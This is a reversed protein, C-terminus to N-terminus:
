KDLFQWLDMQLEHRARDNAIEQEITGIIPKVKLVGKVMRLARSIQEADDERVDRELIVTYAVHRDTM